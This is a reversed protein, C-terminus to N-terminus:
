KGRIRNNKNFTPGTECNYKSLDKFSKEPIERFDEIKHGKHLKHIHAEYEDLYEAKPKGGYGIPLGFVSVLNLRGESITFYYTPAYQEKNMYYYKM